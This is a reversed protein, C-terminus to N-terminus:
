TFRCKAWGIEIRLSVQLSALQDLVQIEIVINTAVPWYLLPPLDGLETLLRTSKHFTGANQQSVSTNSIQSLSTELKSRPQPLPRVRNVKFQRVRHSTM